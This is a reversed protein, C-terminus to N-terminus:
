AADPTMLSVSLIWWLPFLFAATGAILLAYVLISGGRRM